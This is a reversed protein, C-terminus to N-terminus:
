RELFNIPAIRCINWLNRTDKRSMVYPVRSHLLQFFTLCPDFGQAQQYKESHILCSVRCEQVYVIYVANRHHVRVWKVLGVSVCVGGVQSDAM